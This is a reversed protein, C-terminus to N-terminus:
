PLSNRSSAISIFQSPDLLAENLTKSRIRPATCPLSQLPTYTSLSALATIWFYVTPSKSLALAKTSNVDRRPEEILM